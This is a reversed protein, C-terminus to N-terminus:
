DLRRDGVVKLPLGLVLCLQMLDTGPDVLQRDLDVGQFYLVVLAVLLHVLTLYHLLNVRYCVLYGPESLELGFEM